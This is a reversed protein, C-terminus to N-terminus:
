NVRRPRSRLGGVVGDAECHADRESYIVCFVGDARWREYWLSQVVRDMGSFRRSPSDDTYLAVHTHATGAWEPPGCQEISGRASIGMSDAEEPALLLVRSVLVTDGRVTAGLCAVREEGAAVSTDWLARLAHGAEPTFRFTAGSAQGSAQARLPHTLSLAITALILARM